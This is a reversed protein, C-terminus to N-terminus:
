ATSKTPACCPHRMTVITKNDVPALSTYDYLGEAVTTVKHTAIEMNFIPAVGQHYAIFWINQRQSEM